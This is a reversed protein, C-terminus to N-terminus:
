LRTIEGASVRDGWGWPSFAAGIGIGPGFRIAGGVFFGPRPRVYVVYPDYVPVYYLDPNVPVIQIQGGEPLVRAYQNSQLYGYNLADQRMRQVSDMIDPRQALVANGLQQTWGMDRAMRDLISPFPLLALVSSDWPLNDEQIARALDPGRLYQHQVAWTAAAPIENSYTSATLVHALLPDPYLAISGVLQDLQQPPLLPPQTYAPQQPYPQQQPYPNQQQQPYPAQQPYPQAQGYAVCCGTASFVVSALLAGVRM